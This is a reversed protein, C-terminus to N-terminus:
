SKCAPNYGRGSLYEAWEDKTLTRGAVTCATQEWSSPRVDWDIAKGDAYVAVVHSGDPSFAAQNEIGENGPLSAGYQTRAKVDWLRTLGDTGATLLLRGTPDFSVQRVWGPNGVFSRGNPKGTRADWFKVIGDGGGTALLKGDPSFAASFGSGYGDDIDAKYLLKRDALRWVYALGGLPGPGDQVTAVLEKGDPSFAVHPLYNLAKLTTVEQGSAVNWIHVHHDDAGAALLSGDPSYAIGSAPTKLGKLSRVLSGDSANWIRVHPGLGVTAFTKGDPNWAVDLVAGGGAPKTEFLQRGTALDVVSTKGTDETAAVKTGDPSFAFREFAVGINQLVDGTGARFPRGLRQRGSIDWAILAGDLGVTYATKGDPSFAPGFVRGAHGQFTEKLQGSKADWVLVQKDDGTSVITRGDPSFVAGLVAANHRGNLTRTKGTRLDTVTVSGDNHGLVLQQGTPDIEFSTEDTDRVVAMRRWPKFSWVEVTTPEPANYEGSTNRFLLLRDAGTEMDAVPLGPDSTRRLAKKGPYSWVAWTM